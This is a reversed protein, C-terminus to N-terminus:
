VAIYVLLNYLGHALALGHLARFRTFILALILGAFCANMVGWPGEYIHCFSFLVTSVLIFRPADLGFLTLKKYLYYRFFSEELYGTSLCSLLIIIWASIRAPPRPVGAPITNFLSAALSVSLATLLLAPLAALVSWLDRRSVRPIRKRNKAERLLLYWILALAPLNYALIRDLERWSSFAAGSIEAKQAREAAPEPPIERVQAPRVMFEPIEGSLATRGFVGPLFLIVFLLFPEFLLGM